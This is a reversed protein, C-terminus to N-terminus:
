EGTADGADTGGDTSAADTAADANSSGADLACIYEFPRPIACFTNAICGAFAPDNQHCVAEGPPCGGSPVPPKDPNCLPDGVDPVADIGADFTSAPPTGSCAALALTAMAVIPIRTGPVLMSGTYKGVIAPAM